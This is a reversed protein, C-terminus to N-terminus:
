STESDLGLYAEKEFVKNVKEPNKLESSYIFTTFNNRTMIEGTFEKGIELILKKPTLGDWEYKSNEFYRRIVVINTELEKFELTVFLLGEKLTKNVYGNVGDPCDVKEYIENNSLRVNNLVVPM